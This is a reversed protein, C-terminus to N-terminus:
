KSIIQNLIPGNSKASNNCSSLVCFFERKPAVNPDVYSNTWISCYLNYGMILCNELHGKYTSFKM